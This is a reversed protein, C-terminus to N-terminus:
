SPDCELACLVSRSFPLPLSSVAKGKRQSEEATAANRKMLLDTTLLVDGEHAASNLRGDGRFMKGDSTCGREREANLSNMKLRDPSEMVRVAGESAVM